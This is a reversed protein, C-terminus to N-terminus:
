LSALRCCLSAPPPLPQDNGVVGKGQLVAQVMGARVTAYKFAQRVRVDTFPEQDLRMIIPQYFGSNVETVVADPNGELAAVSETNLQWILDITGSTLAAVQTALEPMYFHKVGDLYPLGARWYNDNRVFTASEGALFETLKFPGTGSPQATLEELTRDHPIILGVNIPDGLLLPFDVNPSKLTFRVSNDDIAEVKDVFRFATQAPSGFDPGLVREFTYVIDIPISVARHPRCPLAYPAAGNRNM